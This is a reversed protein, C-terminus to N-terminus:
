GEAELYQEMTTPNSPPAQAVGELLDEPPQVPTNAKIYVASKIEKIILLSSEQVKGEIEKLTEITEEFKKILKEHGNPIQRIHNRASKIWIEILEAKSDLKILASIIELNYEFPLFQDKHKEVNFYLARQVDYIAGEVDSKLDKYKSHYEGLNDEVIKKANNEVTMKHAHMIKGVVTWSVLGAIVVITSFMYLDQSIVDSFFEKRIDAEHVVRQLSDVRKQLLFLNYKVTDTHSTPNLQYPIQLLM